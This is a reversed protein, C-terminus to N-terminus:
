KGAPATAASSFLVPSSKDTTKVIVLDNYTRGGSVADIENDALARITANGAIEAKFTM